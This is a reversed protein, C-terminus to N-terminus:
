QRHRAAAVRGTWDPITDTIPVTTATGTRAAALEQYYGPQGPAITTLSWVHFLRRLQQYGAPDHM